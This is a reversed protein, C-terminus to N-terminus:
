TQEIELGWHLSFFRKRSDILLQLNLFPKKGSDSARSAGPQDSQAGLDWEPRELDREM